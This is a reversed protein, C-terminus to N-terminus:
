ADIFPSGFIRGRVIQLAQDAEEASSLQILMTREKLRRICVPRRGWIEDLWDELKTFSEGSGKLFGVISCFLKKKEEAIVWPAVRM